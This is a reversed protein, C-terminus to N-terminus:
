LPYLYHKEPVNDIDDKVPFSLFVVRYETGTWKEKVQLISKSSNVDGPTSWRSKDKDVRRWPLGTADCFESRGLYKLRESTADESRFLSGYPYFRADGRHCVLM